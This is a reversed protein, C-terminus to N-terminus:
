NRQKPRRMEWSKQKLRRKAKQQENNKNRNKICAKQKTKSVKKLAPIDIACPRLSFFKSPPPPVRQQISIYFIVTM